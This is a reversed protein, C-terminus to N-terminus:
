SKSRTGLEVLRQAKYRRISAGLRVWEIFVKVGTISLTVFLVAAIPIVLPLLPPIFGQVISVVILVALVRENIKVILPATPDFM